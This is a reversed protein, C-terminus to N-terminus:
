SLLYSRGMEVNNLLYASPTHGTFRKFDKIFHNQDYYDQVFDMQRWSPKASANLQQEIRKFRLILSYTKPSLGVYKKFQMELYRESVRLDKALKEISVTANRHINHLTADALTDTTHINTFAKIFYDNLLAIKSTTLDAEELKAHLEKLDGRILIGDFAKNTFEGMDVHLLKSLMTPKLLVGLSYFGPYHIATFHHDIQGYISVPATTYERKLILKGPKGFNFFVGSFGNPFLKHEGGATANVSNAELYGQIYPLLIKSPAYFNFVM